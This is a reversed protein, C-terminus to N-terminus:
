LFLFCCCRNIRSYHHYYFSSIEGCDSCTLIEINNKNPIIWKITYPEFVNRDFAIQHTYRVPIDIVFLQHHLNHITIQHIYERILYAVDIQFEGVHIRAMGFITQLHQTM